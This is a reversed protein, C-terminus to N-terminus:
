VALASMLPVGYPQRGVVENGPMKAFGEVRAVMSDYSELEEASISSRDPLRPMRKAPQLYKQQSQNKFKTAVGCAQQQAKAKSSVSVGIAAIGAALLGRRDM